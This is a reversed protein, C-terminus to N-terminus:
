RARYSVPCPRAARAVGGIQRKRPEASEFQAELDYRELLRRIAIRIVSISFRRAPCSHRGHGFTSVIERGPLAAEDTLRRGDYHDPDFGDFGPHANPNTASLMTTLFVGPELHFRGAETEVDMPKLVRRLTISRQRLRISEFACRELLEDDGERVRALLQPHLLLHVLTWALAAYLNSQAGMQILMLDRAVESDRQPLAVDAFSRSIEDLFDGPARGSVRRAELIQGIVAEIEGMARWERRKKSAMSWFTSLPKVFADAADLRDFAPILRGLNKEEAAEAGAWSALGMRYGLRKAEGFAEFTGNEGLMELELTVADELNELYSEVDPNKFLDHPRNRRGMALEIPLKRKFVLEFTALGFSAVEEPAEYLAAVGMPSFVCFLRYGLADCVFSDGLRARQQEFFATPNRLLGLGAGLWPIPGSATPAAPEV